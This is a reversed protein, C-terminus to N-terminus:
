FCLVNTREVGIEGYTSFLIASLYWRSEGCWEGRSVRRRFEVSEFLIRGRDSRSSLGNSHEPNAGRGSGCEVPSQGRPVSRRGGDLCDRPPPFFFYFLYDVLSNAFGEADRVQTRLMQTDLAVEDQGLYLNNTTGIRLAAHSQPNGLETFELFTLPPAFRALPPSPPMEKPAHQVWDRSVDVSVGSPLTVRQLQEQPTQGPTSKPAALDAAALAVLATFAFGIIRAGNMSM